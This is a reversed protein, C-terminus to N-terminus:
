TQETSASPSTQAPNAFLRRAMGIVILGFTVQFVAQGVVLPGKELVVCVGAAVGAVAQAAVPLPGTLRWGLLRVALVMEHLFLAAGFARHVWHVTDSVTYPTLLVGTLLIAFSVGALRVFRPAPLLPALARLGRNTYLAAGLCGAVYPVLTRWHVGFDSMGCNASLCGPMVALCVGLGGLLCVQGKVLDDLVGGRM